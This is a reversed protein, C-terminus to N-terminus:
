LCPSCPRPIMGGLMPAAIHQMVESEAGTGVFLPLLGAPIVAVTMAKPCVRQVAGKCIAEQLTSLDTLAGAALHQEWAHRM